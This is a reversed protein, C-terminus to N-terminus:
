SKRNLIAVTHSTQITIAHINNAPYRGSYWHRAGGPFTDEKCALAGSVKLNSVQEM